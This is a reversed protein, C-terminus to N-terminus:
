ATEEEDFFLHLQMSAFKLLKLVTQEAAIIAQLRPYHSLAQNVRALDQEGLQLVEDM